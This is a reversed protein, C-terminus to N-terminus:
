PTVSGSTRTALEPRQRLYSEVKDTEAQDLRGTVYWPLLKEIEERAIDENM